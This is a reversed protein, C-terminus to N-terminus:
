IQSAEAEGSTKDEGPKEDAYDSWFQFGYEALASYSLGSLLVKLRQKGVDAFARDSIFGAAVMAALSVPQVAVKASYTKLSDLAAKASVLGERETKRAARVAAKENKLLLDLM